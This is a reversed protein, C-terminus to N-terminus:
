NAGVTVKPSLKNTVGIGVTISVVDIIVRLFINLISLKLFLLVFSNYVLWYIGFIIVGFRVAQAMPSRKRTEKLLWYMVAIWYGIVLTWLFTGVPKESYASMINVIMYGFYRGILFLLPIFIFSKQNLKMRRSPVTSGTGVLSGLLLGLLLISLGDTTSTCLEDMLSSGFVLCMEFIALFCLVAFAIGFRLGKMMKTGSLNTQILTFMIALTGFWVLLAVSVVPLFFGKEIFISPSYDYKIRPAFLRHLIIDVLVSVFVALLIKWGNKKLAFM